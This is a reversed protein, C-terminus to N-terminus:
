EAAISDIQSPSISRAIETATRDAAFGPPARRGQDLDVRYKREQTLSECRLRIAPRRPSAPHVLDMHILINYGLIRAPFLKSGNLSSIWDHRDRGSVLKFQSPL